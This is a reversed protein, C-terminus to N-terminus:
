TPSSRTRRSFTLWRRSLSRDQCSSAASAIDPRGERAIWNMSALLGRLQRTEEANLAETDADKVFIKRKIKAPALRKYIYEELHVIVSSDPLQRLTRGAYMSGEPTKKLNIAKGFKIRTIRTRSRRWRRWFTSSSRWWSRRWRRRFTSSSRWRSRRGRRWFTSGSRWQSIPKWGDEQTLGQRRARPSAAGAVLRAASRVRGAWVRGAGSRSARAALRAAARVRRWRSRRGSPSARTALRICAAWVCRWGPEAEDLCRWRRADHHRHLGQIEM